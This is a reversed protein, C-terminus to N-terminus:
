MNKKLCVPIDTPDTMKVPHASKRNMRMIITLIRLSVTAIKNMWVVLTKYSCRLVDKFDEYVSKKTTRTSAHQYLSLTLANINNIKRPRGSKPTEDFLKFTYSLHTIISKIKAYTACTM